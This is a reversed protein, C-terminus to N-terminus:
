IRVEEREWSDGGLSKAARRKRQRRGCPRRERVMTVCTRSTSSCSDLEYTGFQARILTIELEM